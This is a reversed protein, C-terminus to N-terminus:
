YRIERIREIFEQNSLFSYKTENYVESLKRSIIDVGIDKLFEFPGKSINTGLKFAIDIEKPTAIDLCALETAISVIPSILRLGDYTSNEKKTIKLSENTWNYFGNGTKKGLEKNKVKRILIDPTDILNINKNVYYLVDLGIFDALRIIGLPFGYDYHMVSDIDEKSWKKLDHIALTITPILIRNVIFGPIDKKVVIPTKELSNVFKIASQLTEESTHVSKVVEVLKMIPAPNFFHIGLFRESDKVYNSLKNISLSSTNSAIISENPVYMSIKTFVDKKIRMDETVAEIVLNADKVADKINQITQIRCLIDKKQELSLRGKLVLKELNRNIEHKCRKLSDENTNVVIVNYGHMALTQTIGTGMTGSGIVAIHEFGM